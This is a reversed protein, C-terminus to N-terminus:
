EIDVDPLSPFLLSYLLYAMMIQINDLQTFASVLKVFLDNALLSSFSWLASCQLGMNYIDFPGASSVGRKPIEFGNTNWAGGLQLCYRCHCAFM